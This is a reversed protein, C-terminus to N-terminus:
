SLLALHEKIPEAFSLHDICGKLANDLSGVAYQGDSSNLCSQENCVNTPVGVKWKHEPIGCLHQLVQLENGAVLKAGPLYEKLMTTVPFEYPAGSYYRAAFMIVASMEKSGLPM